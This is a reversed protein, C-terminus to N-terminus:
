RSGGAAAARLFPLPPMATIVTLVDAASPQDMMFRAFQAGSTSSFLRRFLRPAMKPDRKLVSVFIADLWSLLASRGPASPIGGAGLLSAAVAHVQRQIFPFAYGTSIKTAGAGAGLATVGPLPARVPGSLPLVGRERREVHFDCATLGFRTEIYHQIAARYREEPWPTPSLVTAEVLARTRSFPLVYFFHIGGSQEVDFDMLLARGPDFKPPAQIEWGEFHQLLANPPLAPPRTDFVHLARITGFPGSLVAADGVHAVAEVPSNMRLEVNQSREIRAVQTRQFTRAAICVYRHEPSKHVIERGDHRLSWTNWAADASLGWEALEGTDWFCWTRDNAFEPRAELVVCAPGDPRALRAALSLGACGGGIIAVDFDM